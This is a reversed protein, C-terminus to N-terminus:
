RSSENQRTSTEEAASAAARFLTISELFAVMQGLVIGSTGKGTQRFDFSITKEPLRSYWGFM